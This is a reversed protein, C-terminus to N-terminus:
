GPLRRQAVFHFGLDPSSSGESVGQLLRSQGAVVSATHRTMTKKHYDLPDVFM